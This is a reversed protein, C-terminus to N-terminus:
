EETELLQLMERLSERARKVRMKIASVSVDLIEAIESYSLHHYEVMVITTRQNEPLREVAENLLKTAEKIEAESLPHDADSAIREIVRTGTPSSSIPAYLSLAKRLKLKRFENISLNTAIRYLWTSFKAIPKYRGANRYVRLFTEQALDEAVERNKVFSYCFTIMANTYRDLLVEFADTGGAALRAMLAEDSQKTLLRVDSKVVESGEATKDLNM